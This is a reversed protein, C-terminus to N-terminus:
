PLGASGPRASAHAASLGILSQAIWYTTLVLLPAAAFPTVFSEISLLSDSALVCLGGVAALATARDRRRRWVTAAQAAMTALVAAYVVVPVLLGRPVFSWLASVALAALLAYALIPWAIAFLPARRTFAFLYALHALLFSALGFVFYDGPLMLFVDGATSLLLGILIGNRYGSESFSVRWVMAVILLTTSPKALYHLWPLPLYAGAIALAADAGILCLWVAPTRAAQIDKRADGATTTM